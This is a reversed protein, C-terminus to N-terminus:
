DAGVPQPRAVPATQERPLFRAAAGALVFYVVGTFLFVGRLSSAAIATGLMPAITRAGAITANDLGYVAGEEGPTSYRALLAGISPLTGGVLAGTLAQLLLLQWAETVAAQPLYCLAAGLAGWMLVRRHGVRDGLWGMGVASVTGAFSAVSVVIGTTTAVQAEGPLLLVMFLPIIPSLAMRGLFALFRLGYTTVIGPAALIHRWGAIMSVRQGDEQRVPEFEERVGFWVLVGGALLAVATVMFPAQFGYADALVGGIVPGLAIGIWRAMETSGVALGTRERPVAAVILATIASGVGTTAGQLARLLVLGEVSEVTSMLLFLVAGGFMARQVMLKRGYRDALAGWLPSAIMMTFAQASYVMGTWFEISISRGGALDEVYLPLFPFVLAFGLTAVLQAFFLIILTRHWRAM